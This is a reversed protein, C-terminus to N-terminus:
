LDYSVAVFALTTRPIALGHPRSSSQPRFVTADTANCKRCMARCWTMPEFPIHRKRDSCGTLAEHPGTICAQGQRAHGRDESNDRASLRPTPIPRGTPAQARDHANGRDARSPHCEPMREAAQPLQHGALCSQSDETEQGASAVDMPPDDEGSACTASPSGPMAPVSEPTSMGRNGKRLRPLVALGRMPGAPNGRIHGAHQGRVASGRQHRHPILLYRCILPLQQCKGSDAVRWQTVATSRV